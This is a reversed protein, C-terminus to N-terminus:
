CRRVSGRRGGSLRAFRATWVFRTEPIEMFSDQIRWSRDAVSMQADASALATSLSGDHGTNMARLM